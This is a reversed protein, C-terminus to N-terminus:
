LNLKYKLTTYFTHDGRVSTIDYKFILKDDIWNSQFFLQDYLDDIQSRINTNDYLIDSEASSRRAFKLEERSCIKPKAYRHSCHIIIDPRIIFNNIIDNYESKYEEIYQPSDNNRHIQYVFMSYYWRDIIIITKEIENSISTDYRIYEILKETYKNAGMWGKNKLINMYEANERDPNQLLIINYGENKLQKTIYESLTSKGTGDSGELCIIKM